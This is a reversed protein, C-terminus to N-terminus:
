PQKNIENFLEKIKEYGPYEPNLELHQNQETVTISHQVTNYTFTPPHNFHHINHIQKYENELLQRLKLQKQLQIAHELTKLHEPTEDTWCDGYTHIEAQIQQLTELNFNNYLWKEYQKPTILNFPKLHTNDHTIKKNQKHSKTHQDNRRPKHTLRGYGIGITTYTENDIPNIITPTPYYTTLEKAHELTTRQLKHKGIIIQYLPQGTPDKEETYVIQTPQKRLYNHEYRYFNDITNNTKILQTQNNTVQETM